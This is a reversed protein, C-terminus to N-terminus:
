EDRQNARNQGSHYDRKNGYDYAYRNNAADNVGTSIINSNGNQAVCAIFLLFTLLLTHTSRM